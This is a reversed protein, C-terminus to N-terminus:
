LFIGCCGGSKWMFRIEDLTMGGFVSEKVQGNSQVFDRLTGIIRLDGFRKKCWKDSSELVVCNDLDLDNINSLINGRWRNSYNEYANHIEEWEKCIENCENELGSIAEMILRNKQLLSTHAIGYAYAGMNGNRFEQELLMAQHGCEAVSRYLDAIQAMKENKLQDLKNKTADYDGFTQNLHNKEELDHANTIDMYVWCKRVCDYYINFMREASSVVIHNPIGLKDLWYSVLYSFHKSIGRMYATLKEAVFNRHALAPQKNAFEADIIEFDKEYAVNMKFKAVLEEFKNLKQVDNLDSFSRDCNMLDKQFQRFKHNTEENYKDFQYMKEADSLDCFSINKSSLWEWFDIAAGVKALCKKM